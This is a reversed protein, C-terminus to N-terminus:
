ASPSESASVAVPEAAPTVPTVPPEPEPAPPPPPMPVGAAAYAAPADLTEAVLLAQALSELQDRHTTLLKTAATHLHEVLTQVEQDILWQLQPSTESAGPLLPGQGDSPLLTLPGLKDSMGWRGIMSRAIQTLQQLDSEAGTTIQKYVVEEATRGGLAVKIKAELEERSYSVRDADPTSLTVGLAQGRPIISVKRVPDAGPTLMGILAHGSEHYATRERDEKSLMIGRPAGLIIKELSDTFDAMTVKDHNRRAALLAAENCLNALDAGVMGPTTSALAGLDVDSALPISRTHVELIKARGARDPPQVAVRRDFRGPRLLAPDLIEARNTAGIVVVAESPEFGDMETLIQDLTQEREDNAGTVSISGQRSRGIADLEDIFIISPAAEKAKAFLDRVRAAGVGVIAEIFESAAISFFAAHAEGAVARALLTKGTGPPGYLLVGHPMRGGLKQYREPTKLFDVIETLEGKAEDIGAVDNFTVRIKEPDVRRAQSRGFAGLGGLGGGGGSTIARRAIFYIVAFLLLTPGFGLLLETLVSTGPNPNKANVQVGKSQLLTTLENTNWFSPVQTAFLTTATSTSEPYHVAAKFTGDIAGSKASISAVQGAELQNLFYPSFPVTVRPQGAPQFLLVSLWNLALLVLFSIWLGRWRHPPAPKHEEPMGRGDPAPAVRWGQKDRPMNAPPVAKNSPTSARPAPEPDSM